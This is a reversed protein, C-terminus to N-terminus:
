DMEFFHTVATSKDISVRLESYANIPMPDVGCGCNIVVETFFVGISGDLSLASEKFRNITVTIDEKGIYGGHSTAKELPLRAPGQSELERKITVGFDSTNWAALSQTLLFM